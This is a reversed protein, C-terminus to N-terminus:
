DIKLLKEDLYLLYIINRMKFHLQFEAKGDSKKKKM